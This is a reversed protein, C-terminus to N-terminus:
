LGSTASLHKLLDLAKCWVVIRPFWVNYPLPIVLPIRSRGTRYSESSEYEADLEFGIPHSPSELAAQFRTTFINLKEEDQFPMAGKAVEAANHRINHQQGGTITEAIEAWSKIQEKGTM